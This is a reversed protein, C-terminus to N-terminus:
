VGEFEPPYQVVGRVSALSGEQLELVMFAEEPVEFPATIKNNYTSIFGFRPYYSPHGLVIVISIGQAKCEELGNQILLTGVGKNQCSPRVAVPALALADVLGQSTKIPAPSFFCHGVIKNDHLAVLGIYDRNKRLDRVLNAEEDQKFAQRLVEDIQSFDAEEKRLEICHINMYM